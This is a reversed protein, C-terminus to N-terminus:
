DVGNVRFYGRFPNKKTGGYIKQTIVGKESNASHVIKGDGIYIAVHKKWLVIDGPQADKKSVETLIGSRNNYLSNTGCRGNKTINIGFNEYVGGVFGICDTPKYKTGGHWNCTDKKYKNGKNAFGIAYTVIQQRLSAGPKIGAVGASVFTRTLKNKYIDPDLWVSNNSNNAGAIYTGGFLDNLESIKVQKWCASVTYKQSTTMLIADVITPLLFVIVAAMFKNIVRRFGDKLEPNITLQVFQITAAVILILPVVIQILMFIRKTVALVGVISYDKCCTGLTSCDLIQFLEM